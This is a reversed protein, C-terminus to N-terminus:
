FTYTYGASLGIGLAASEGSSTGILNYHMFQARFDIPLDPSLVYGAGLNYGFRTNTNSSSIGGASGSSVLFNLGIEAGAYLGADPQMFFYRAGGWIPILNVSSSVETGMFSQSKSFGFLYGIRGTVELEPLVRYGGRLLPGLQPGTADSLDGVPIVFQLDGGVGVGLKKPGAADQASATAPLLLGALILSTKLISRM